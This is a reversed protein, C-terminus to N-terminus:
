LPDCLSKFGNYSSEEKNFPTKAKWHNEWKRQKGIKSETQLSLVSRIVEALSCTGLTENFKPQLNGDFSSSGRRIFACFLLHLLPKQVIEKIVAFRVRECVCVCM